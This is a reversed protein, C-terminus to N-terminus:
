IDCHILDFCQSAKSKSVPFPIRAQKARLCVDCVSDKYKSHTNILIDSFVKSLAQSSPRGVRRHWLEQSIPKNAQIGEMPGDQYVVVGRRPEGVGILNKTSLDQVVCLKKTFTVMCCLEDLLQYISILNCDLSPV